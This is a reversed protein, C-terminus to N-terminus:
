QRDDRTWPDRVCERPDRACARERDEVAKRAADEASRNREEIEILAQEAGRQKIEQYILMLGLLAATGLLVYRGIPGLLWAIM